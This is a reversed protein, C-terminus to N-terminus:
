APNGLETAESLSIDLAQALLLRLEIVEQDGTRSEEDLAQVVCPSAVLDVHYYFRWHYDM